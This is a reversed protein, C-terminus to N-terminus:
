AIRAWREKSYAEAYTWASFKEEEPPQPEGIIWPDPGSSTYLDYAEAASKAGSAEERFFAQVIAVCAARAEKYTQFNGTRYGASRDMYHFNDDVQIEYTM